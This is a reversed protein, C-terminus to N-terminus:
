LSGAGPRAERHVIQSVIDATSEGVGLLFASKLSPQWLQGAFYLGPYDTAGRRAQLLGASDVVPLKVLGYDSRYGSAWIISGIGAQGLDLEALIPAEYGDRLQTVQEEPADLRNRAIYADIQKLLEEEYRDSRTLNAPLDPALGVRDDQAGVLHGLLVVGDRAFQHLNLGHGGDKGTVQPPSFSRAQPSPLMDVTRDFFGITVLWDFIDRERYRRPARGTTGTSLYVRRGAQYLEEVIQCGSQGSGVVLVAGSPLMTPNRYQGSHLQLVGAPLNAAFAPIKPQQYAGTAMVVNTAAFREDEAQVIYGAGSRAPEVALVRTEYRVPLGFQQVYREFRAVIADRPMYSAPHAGQYEAGPLRFSWNPTVLTFSDWRGDRWANGPRAAQELVVHEHDQQALHYSTSLGAQGGGVIVTEVHLTM